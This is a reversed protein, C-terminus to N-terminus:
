APWAKGLREWSERVSPFSEPVPHYRRHRAVSLFRAHLDYLAELREEATEESPDPYAAHAFRHAHYRDAQERHTM